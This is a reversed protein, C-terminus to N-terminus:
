KCTQITTRLEAFAIISSLLDHEICRRVIIQPTESMGRGAGSDRHAAPQMLPTNQM